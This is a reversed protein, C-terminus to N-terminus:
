PLYIQNSKLHIVQMQTVYNLATAYHLPYILTTSHLLVNQCHEKFTHANLNSNVDDCKIHTWNNCQNCQYSATKQNSLVPKYCINCRDSQISKYSDSCIAGIILDTATPKDMVFSYDTETIM